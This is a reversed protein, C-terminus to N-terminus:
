SVGAIGVDYLDNKGTFLSLCDISECKAAISKMLGTFDDFRLKCERVSVSLFNLAVKTNSEFEM